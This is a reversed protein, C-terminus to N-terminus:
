YIEKRNMDEGREWLTIVKGETPYIFKYDAPKGPVSRLQIDNINGIFQVVPEDYYYNAAERIRPNEKAVQRAVQIDTVTVDELSETWSHPIFNDAALLQRAEDRTIIGEGERDVEKAAREIIQLAKEISKLAQQENLEGDGTDKALGGEEIAKQKQELASKAQSLAQETNKYAVDNKAVYLEIINKIKEGQNEAILKQIASGSLDFTFSVTSPLYKNSLEGQMSGTFEMAGSRSAEQNSVQAELGRGFSGTSMAWVNFPPVGYAACIGNVLVEAYKVIDFQDPLESLAILELAADSNSSFLGMVGDYNSGAANAKDENYKETADKWEKGKIGKGFLIGKPPNIGMKELHNAQIAMAMRVWSLARETACFGAYAMKEEISPMSNAHLIEEHALEVRNGSRPYYIVPKDLDNTLRCRTSDIAYIDSAVGYDNRVIESIFGLNTSYYATAQMSLWTRWGKKHAHYLNRSYIAVQRAAGTLLWPAAKQRAVTYALISSLLSDSRTLELLKEDRKRTDATYPPLKENADQIFRVIGGVLAQAEDFRSDEQVSNAVNLGGKEM